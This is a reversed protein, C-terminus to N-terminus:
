PYNKLMNEEFATAAGKLNGRKIYLDQCKQFANRLNADGFNTIRTGYRRLSKPDVQPNYSKSIVNRFSDTNPVWELMGTEESLCVVSFTRLHLIRRQRRHSGSSTGTLLRNIVNNLDQVRADKRLDGKAEQKVLFHMEGVDGPQLGRDRRKSSIFSATAPTGASVAFATIKKPRAKSNM